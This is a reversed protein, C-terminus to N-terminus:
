STSARCASARRPAARTRRSAARVHQPLRSSREVARRRPVAALTVRALRRRVEVVADAQQRALPAVRQARDVRERAPDVVDAVAVSGRRVLLERRSSSSARAASSASSAASRRGPGADREGVGGAAERDREVRELSSISPTSISTTPVRSRRREVVEDGVAAADGADIPRSESPTKPARSRSRRTSRASSRPTASWSVLMRRSTALVERVAADVQRGLIELAEAAVSASAGCRGAAMGVQDANSASRARPRTRGRDRAAAAARGASRPRRRPSPRADVPPQEAPDLAVRAPARAAATESGVSPSPSPRPGCGRRARRSSALTTTTPPPRAPM